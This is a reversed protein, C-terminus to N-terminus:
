ERHRGRGAQSRGAQSQGARSRGVQSRYLAARRNVSVVQLANIAPGYLIASRRHRM